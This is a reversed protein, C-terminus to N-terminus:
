LRSELKVTMDSGLNLEDIVNQIREFIEAFAGERLPCSKLIELDQMITSHKVLLDDVKDRFTIVSDSFRRVYPDLKSLSEWKLRFGLCGLYVVLM